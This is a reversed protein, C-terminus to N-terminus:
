QSHFIFWNLEYAVHDFLSGDIWYFTTISKEFHNQERCSEIRRIIEVSDMWEELLWSTGNYKMKWFKYM